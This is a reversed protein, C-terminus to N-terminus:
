VIREPTRHFMKVIIIETFSELCSKQILHLGFDTGREFLDLCVNIMFVFVTEINIRFWIQTICLLNGFIDASVKAPRHNSQGSDVRVVAFRNGKVVIFMFIVGKDAFRNRGHFEDLKKYLVNRVLLEFHNAIVAEIGSVTFLIFLKKSSNGIEFM